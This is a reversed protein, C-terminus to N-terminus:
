LFVVIMNECDYNIRRTWSLDFAKRENHKKQIQENNKPTPHPFQHQNLYQYYLPMQKPLNQYPHVKVSNTSKRSLNPIMHHIIATVSVKCISRKHQYGQM